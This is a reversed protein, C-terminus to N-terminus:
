NTKKADREEIQERKSEPITGYMAKINKPQSIMVETIINVLGFLTQTTDPEENLDIQGPHIVQNGKIRVIDLSKIIDEHLGKEKM